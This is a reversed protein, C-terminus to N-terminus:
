AMTAWEPAFASIAPLSSERFALAAFANRPARIVASYDKGSKTLIARECRKVPSSRQSALGHKNTVITALFDLFSLAGAQPDGICICPAAGLSRIKAVAARALHGPVRGGPPAAPRLGGGLRWGGKM